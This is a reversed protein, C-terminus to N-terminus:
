VSPFAAFVPSRNITQHRPQRWWISGSAASNKWRQPASVGTERKPTTMPFQCSLPHQLDSSLRRGEEKKCTAALEDSTPHDPNAAPPLNGFKMLCAMLLLRAKTATLNSGGIFFPDHLPVFRETNGREVRVAPLESNVARLM